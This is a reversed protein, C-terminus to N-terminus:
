LVRWVTRGQWDDPFGMARRELDTVTRLLDILRSRWTSDTLQSDLLHLLAVVVNYIRNDPQAQGMSTDIVMDRGWRKVRPVRKVLRKNWLRSHHACINRVYSLAQLVGDTIELTPLGLDRTVAAKVHLDKTIQVWRSLEGFTMLETVAWLPPLYPDTYKTRYHAIFTEDSKDTSRALKALLETHAKAGRFASPDLHAHAGHAHSLHYTWRSRVHIEVREIAELLLLRLKRDFVYREIVQDFSTGVAFRKSRTQGPPAPMEFSLWYASLRYYGVSELWTEAESTDRILMGRQRLLAVQDGVLTPLKGFELFAVDPYLYGGPISSPREAPRRPPTTPIFIAIRAQSTLRATKPQM